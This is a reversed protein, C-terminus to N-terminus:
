SQSLNNLNNVCNKIEQGDVANKIQKAAKYRLETYAEASYYAVHPTIILRDELWEADNEYDVVLQQESSHGEIPLVDLGCAKVKGSKMSKYLENLNIIDGRATNILICDDRIKRLFDSGVMGRTEKTSPAHISIIDCRELFGELTDARTIGLAKDYGDDLYPDYFVINMGFSKCRIAVATGIRGLGIIGITKGSLRFTINDNRDWHRKKIAQQYSPISRVLSLLLGLTHDAVEETGYDPVNCVAINRQRAVALDINDYGVGLRVIIQCNELKSLLEANYDMLHFALIGHSQKWIEDPIDNAHQAEGVIINYQEGLTDHEIQAPPVVVDPILINKKMNNNKILKRELVILNVQVLYTYLVLVSLM